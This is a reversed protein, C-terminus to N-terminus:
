VGVVRQDDEGTPTVVLRLDVALVLVADDPRFHVSPLEGLVNPHERVVARFHM